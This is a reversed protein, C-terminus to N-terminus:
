FVDPRCELRDILDALQTSVHASDPHEDERSATTTTKRGRVPPVRDASAFEVAKDVNDFIHFIANLGTLRLPRLPRESTIVLAITGGKAVARKLSGLLVGVGKSDMFSIDSLDFVIRSAGADYAEVAFQRLTRASYRDFDGTVSILTLRESLFERRVTFFAAHDSATTVTVAEALARMTDPAQHTRLIAQTLRHMTLGDGSAQVLTTRTLATLLRSRALPDALRTALRDPLRETATTFWTVPIRGPPLFACIVALDAADEDAVRLRDYALTTVATLTGARYTLPKGEGLLETARDKLLVVYDTPRMRTEALYVAAQAIALPLDGLAAALLTADSEALGPVRKRLLEMSESRSLLGVPVLVAVESWGAFRSTVLVHGPGNPLWDLLGDPDEANDFITLWGPRRYLDSLVARRVAAPPTASEACGLVTALDAFQSELLEAKEADLWWVVDYSDAFRHAYEIALQTKGVGGMGHLAQVAARSGSLLADRIAALQEERGTFVPNRAPVNGWARVPASPRAQLAEHIHVNGATAYVNGSGAYTDRGATYSDRGAAVDQWVEPRGSLGEAMDSRWRM